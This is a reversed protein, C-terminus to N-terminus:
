CQFVWGAVVYGIKNEEYLFPIAVTTSLEINEVFRVASEQNDQIYDLFEINTIATSTNDCDAKFFANIDAWHASIEHQKNNKYIHHYTKYMYNDICLQHFIIFKLVM